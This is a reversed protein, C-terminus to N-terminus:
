YKERLTKAMTSYKFYKQKAFSSGKVHYQSSNNKLLSKHSNQYKGSFELTSPHCLNRNQRSNKHRSVQKPGSKSSKLFSTNILQSGAEIIAGPEPAKLDISCSKGSVNINPFTKIVPISLSKNNSCSSRREHPIIVKSDQSLCEKKSKSPKNISEVNLPEAEKLKSDNVDLIKGSELLDLLPYAEMSSNNDTESLSLLPISNADVVEFSQASDINYSSNVHAEPISNSTRDCNSISIPAIVGNDLNALALESLLSPYFTGNPINITPISNSDISALEESINLPLNTAHFPINTFSSVNSLDFSNKTGDANAIVLAQLSSIESNPTGESLSQLGYKVASISQAVTQSDKPNNNLSLDSGSLSSNLSITVNKSCDSFAPNKEEKKDLQDCKSDFNVMNCTFPADDFRESKWHFQKKPKFVPVYKLANVSSCITHSAVRERHVVRFQVDNQEQNSQSLEKVNSADM